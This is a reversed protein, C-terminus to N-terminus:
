GGAATQSSQAATTQIVAQGVVPPQGPGAPQVTTITQEVASVTPSSRRNLFNGLGDLADRGQQLIGVLSHVPYSGSGIVIGTAFVDIRAPMAIGLLAFMKIQGVTAVIVGLMLGLVVSAAAKASIYDPSSSAQSLRKETEAVRAEAEALMRQVNATEQDARNRLNELQAALKELDPQQMLQNMEDTYKAELNNYIMGINQMWVRADAVETEARKLWRMGYGLYAVGTRWVNELTNFVSELLREVGTAVAVVPAMIVLLDTGAPPAVVGTTPSVPAILFVWIFLGIWIVVVLSVLAIVFVRTRKRM